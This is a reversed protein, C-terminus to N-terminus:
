VIGGTPNIAGSGFIFDALFTNCDTIVVFHKCNIYFSINQEFYPPFFVTMVESESSSSFLAGM